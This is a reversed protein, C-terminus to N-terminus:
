IEVSINNVSIRKYAKPVGERNEDGKPEVLWVVVGGGGGGGVVANAKGDGDSLGNAGDLVALANADTSFLDSEFGGAGLVGNDNDM